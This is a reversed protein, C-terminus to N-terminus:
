LKIKKSNNWIIKFKEELNKALEKNWITVSSFLENKNKPHPQFIVTIEGDIIGFYSEPKDILRIQSKKLLEYHDKKYNKLYELFEQSILMNLEVGNDISNKLEKIVEESNIVNNIHPIIFAVKKPKCYIINNIKKLDKKSDFTTWFIDSKKRQSKITSLEKLLSSVNEKFSSIKEQWWNEKKKSYDKLAKEPRIAKFKKPRTNLIEVFGKNSLSKLVDYVKGFPIKAEKYITNANTCDYKLLVMYAKIEYQTLELESLSNEIDM